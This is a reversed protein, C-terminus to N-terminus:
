RYYGSAPKGTTKKHVEPHVRVKCQLCVSFGYDTEYYQHGSGTHPHKFRDITIQRRETDRHPEHLIKDFERSTYADSVTYKGESDEMFKAKIIEEWKM